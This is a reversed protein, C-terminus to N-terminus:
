VHLYKLYYRQWYIIVIYLHEINKGFSTDRLLNFNAGAEWYLNGMKRGGPYIKKYSVPIGRHNARKGNVESTWQALLTL